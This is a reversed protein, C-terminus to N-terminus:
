TNLQHDKLNIDSEKQELEDHMLILGKKPRVITEDDEIEERLRNLDKVISYLPPEEDM